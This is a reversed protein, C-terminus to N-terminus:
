KLFENVKQLNYKLLIKDVETTTSNDIEVQNFIYGTKTKTIYKDLDLTNKFHYFAKILQPDVIRIENISWSLNNRQVVFLESIYQPNSFITLGDETNDSLSM